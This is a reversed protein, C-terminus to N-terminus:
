QFLLISVLQICEQYIGSNYQCQNNIGHMWWYLTGVNTEAHGYAIGIEEDDTKELSTYAINQM